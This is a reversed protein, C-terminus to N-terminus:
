ELPQVLLIYSLGQILVMVIKTLVLLNTYSACVQTNTYVCGRGLFFFINSTTPMMRLVLTLVSLTQPLALKASPLGIYNLLWDRFMDNWKDEVSYSTSMADLVPKCDQDTIEITSLQEMFKAFVPHYLMVPVDPWQPRYLAKFVSNQLLVFYWIFTILLLLECIIFTFM